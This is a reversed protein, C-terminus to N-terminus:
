FSHQQIAQEVRAIRESFPPHTALMRDLPGGSQREGASLRDFLNLIAHPDYGASAMYVTGYEDADLEASRGWGRLLINATVEVAIQGNRGTYINGLEPDETSLREMLMIAAAVVEIQQASHRLAVHAIEHGIVGALEDDNEIVELMGRTVYIWGGPLAFANVDDVDVVQFTYPLNPRPQYPLLARGIREVRQVLAADRSIPYEREFEEASQRGIEIEEADTVRPIDIRGGPAAIEVLTAIPGATPALSPLSIVTARLGSEPTPTAALRLLPTAGALVRWILLVALLGAAAGGVLIAARRQRPVAMWFRARQIGARLASQVPGFRSAAPVALVQGCQRCFRVGPRNAASCRPCRQVLAVPPAPQM